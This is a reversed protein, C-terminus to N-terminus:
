ELDIALYSLRLKTSTTGMRLWEADRQVPEERSLCLSSTWVGVSWIATLRDM